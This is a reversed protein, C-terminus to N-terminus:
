QQLRLRPEEPAGRGGLQPLVPLLRYLRYRPQGTHQGPLFTSKPIAHCAAGGGNNCSSDTYGPRYDKHPSDAAMALGYAGILVALAVVVSLLTKKM